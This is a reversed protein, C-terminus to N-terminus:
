KWYKLEVKSQNYSKIGIFALVGVLAVGFAILGINSMGDVLTIFGTLGSSTSITLNGSQIIEEGMLLSYEINQTIRQEPDAYVYFVKSEGDLITLTGESLQLEGDFEGLSLTYTHTEGEQNNVTIAFVSGQKDDLEQITNNIVVTSNEIELELVTLSFDDTDCENNSLSCVSANVNVIEVEATGSVVIPVIITTSQSPTLYVRQDLSAYASNITVDFYDATNGDNRVTLRNEGIAGQEVYKYSSQWSVFPTFVFPEVYINTLHGTLLIDDQLVNLRFPLIEEEPATFSISVSRNQGPVLTYTTALNVEESGVIYQLKVRETFDGTNCLKASVTIEDGPRIDTPTITLDNIRIENFLDREQVTITQSVSDLTISGLLLNLTVLESPADGEVAALSLTGLSSEGPQILGTTFSVTTSLDSTATVTFSSPYDGNNTVNFTCDKTTAEKATCTELVITGSSVIPNAEGERRLTLFSVPIDPVTQNTTTVSAIFVNVGSSFPSTYSAMDASSNSNDVLLTEQSDSSGIGTMSPSYMDVTYIVDDITDVNSIVYEVNLSGASTWLSSVSLTSNRDLDAIYEFNTADKVEGDILLKITYTGASLGSLTPTAVFAGDLLLNNQNDFDSMYEFDESSTSLITEGGTSGTKYIKLQLSSLALTGQGTTHDIFGYISLADGPGIESMAIDVSATYIPTTAFVVSFAAFLAFIMILKKM